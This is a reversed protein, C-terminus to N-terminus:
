GIHVCAGISFTEPHRLGVGAGVALGDGCRRALAKLCVRRMMRDFWGDEQGFRRFLAAIAEADLHGRLEDALGAECAPDPAPVRLGHTATVIRIGPRPDPRAEADDPLASM